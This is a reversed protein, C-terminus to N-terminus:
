EDIRKTFEIGKEVSINISRRTYDCMYQSRNGVEKVPMYISHQNQVTRINTHIIMMLRYFWELLLAKCDGLTKFIIAALCVKAYGDFM